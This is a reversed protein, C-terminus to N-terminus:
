NTSQEHKVQNAKNYYTIFEKTVDEGKAEPECTPCGADILKEFGKEIRFREMAALVRKWVPEVFRISLERVTRDYEKIKAALEEALQKLELKQAASMPPNDIYARHDDPDRVNGDLFPQIKKQLERLEDVQPRASDNVQKIAAIYETIGTNEDGFQESFILAIKKASANEVVTGQAVSQTATTLLTLIFVILSKRPSM